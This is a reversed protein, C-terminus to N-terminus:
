QKGAAPKDHKYHLPYHHHTGRNVREAFDFVYNMGVFPSRENHCGRCVEATPPYRLGRRVADATMFEKNSASMVTGAYGGGPGHCAECTVGAMQPTTEISVFGGQLGYGTTHCPLCSEDHTHDAAPDLKAIRKPEAAAGPRLVEFSKAMRTEAWDAFQREHCEKCKQPGVYGLATGPKHHKTRFSYAFGAAMLCFVIVAIAWDRPQIRPADNDPTAM